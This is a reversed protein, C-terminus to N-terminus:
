AAAERMVAPWPLTGVATTRRIGGVEATIAHWERSYRKLGEWQEDLEIDDVLWTRAGRIASDLVEFVADRNVGPGRKPGDILVAAFSGPLEAPEVGYWAGSHRPMLPAYILNVNTAGYRELWINVREIWRLDNELVYLKHERGKLALGMVLTSLGSGCELIDARATRAMEWCARLAKGPLTYAQGYVSHRHLNDFVDDIPVGSDTYPSGEWEAITQAADAFRPGDIGQKRRLHNGFHGNWTKDGCHSFAMDPDAFVEFGLSRAKLCLIYDGSQSAETRSLDALGLEKVFGRECIRAVPLRNLHKNDGDLWMLRAKAKEREYLAEIVPRRIRMFGTAVKPMPFLGYENPRTEGEFAHFPFSEPDSKHPYVGAVIDGPLKLLRIVNNPTWGLDADVFFLDTCESQLFNRILINRADDVHCCGQLTEVDFRIGAVTLAQATAALAVAYAACPKEAVPTALMVYYPSAAWRDSAAGSYPFRQAM